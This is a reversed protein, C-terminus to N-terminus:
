YKRSTEIENRLQNYRKLREPHIEESTAALVACKPEHRHTCNNFQCNIALKKLEPYSNTFDQPELDLDTLSIAQFGPTDAIYSDEYPFLEIHRTTQRGRGAKSSLDGTLMVEKDFLRNLLTSKGVGSQGAFAVVQNKILNKLNKLDNDYNKGVIFIPFNTPKYNAILEAYSKKESQNDILDYKTFILIPEINLLVAYSLLRDILFFDAKPLELSVTILLMDLNAMPPRILSNKRPLIKDIVYPVDPDGSSSYQIIDGPLPSMEDKRFIGRPVAVGEFYPKYRHLLYQGGVGKLIVAQNNTLKKM